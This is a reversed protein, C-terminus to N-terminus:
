PGVKAPHTAAGGCCNQARGRGCRAASAPTRTRSRSRCPRVPGTGLCGWCPYLPPDRLAELLTPITEVAGFQGLAEAAASRVLAEGDTRLAAILAATVEANAGRIKALAAAASRTSSHTAQRLLQILTPASSAPLEGLKELARLVDWSRTTTKKLLVTLLALVASLAAPRLNGLAYVTAERVKADKDSLAVALQSVVADPPM